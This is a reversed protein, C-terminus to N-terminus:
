MYRMKIRITKAEDTVAFRADEYKPPGFTIKADNSAGYGEKPLGFVNTDMKNNNNEDHLLAIAYDGPPLDDFVITCKKGEAKGTAKRFAKSIDSPFGDASRFLTLRVNGADNRLSHIEVILAGKPTPSIIEEPMILSVTLVLWTLFSSLM